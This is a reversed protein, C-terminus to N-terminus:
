KATDVLTLNLEKRSRDELEVSTAQSEVRALFEPDMYARTCHEGM